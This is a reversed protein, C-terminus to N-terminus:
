TLHAGTALHHSSISRPTHETYAADSQMSEADKVRSSILRLMQMKFMIGVTSVTPLSKYIRSFQDPQQLTSNWFVLVLDYTVLVM